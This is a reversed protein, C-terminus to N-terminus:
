RAELAAVKAALEQIAKVLRAETKSWGTVTLMKDANEGVVDPYITQMEQAIFGIQHGGTKYDFEVPRLACISALQPPLDVINEKLRADSWTGFAVANAGNANIQGSTTANNNIAFQVFIQSTTSNNDYKSVLIARQGVDGSGASFFRAVDKNNASQSVELRGDGSTTTGILTNGAFYNQATGAAYFNWRNSGSAINSYFGYNNTAGTLSADAYYGYQSTVASSAGLTGQAAQYHLLQGLTFSAAQTSPQSLVSYYISTTGSPITGNIWNVVTANGSTPYTGLIHLKAAANATGGIGVNGSADIRMRETVATNTTVSRTGFVISGLTGGSDSTTVFAIEGPPETYTADTFGLGVSYYGGSTFSAGGVQLMPTGFAAAPARNLTLLGGAAATTTGVLLNGSTDLRMRESGGTSWAVTDATPSWMGTNADGTFTYSPTGVAGLGNTLTTFAGTNPTTAGIPPMSAAINTLTLKYNAGSRAVVYEDGAQAPAGSALQSIKKDVSM